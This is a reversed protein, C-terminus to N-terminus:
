ANRNDWIKRLEVYKAEWDQELLANHKGALEKTAQECLELNKELKKARRKWHIVQKREDDM